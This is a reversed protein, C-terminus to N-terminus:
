PEEVQFIIPQIRYANVSRGNQQAPTWKPGNKIAKVAEEEMGYGFSTLAKVDSVSGDKSVIFQVLVRYTGPNAGNDAGVNPNLNRENHLYPAWNSPPAAEIEVKHFITNDDTPAEAVSTGTTTVPPAVISADAKGTQTVNSTLVSDLKKQDPPKVDKPVEIDKKIVTPTFKVTQMQPPPTPMQHALPPPPLSKKAESLSVETLVPPPAVVTPKNFAGALFSILFILAVVGATILLATVLRKNYTRRLNYAGYEKNKGEFIIDLVDAALIKNADMKRNKIQPSTYSRQRM